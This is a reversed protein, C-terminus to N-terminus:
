KQNNHQPNTDTGIFRLRLSRNYRSGNGGARREEPDPPNDPAPDPPNDPVLDPPNDPVPDPPNDPEPDPPNDPEPDLPNDIQDVKNNIKKGPSRTNKESEQSLAPKIRRLLISDPEEMWRYEGSAADVLYYSTVRFELVGNEVSFIGHNFGYQAFGDGDKFMVGAQLQLVSNPNTGGIPINKRKAQHSHGCLYIGSRCNKMAQALARKTEASLFQYGHHGVFITLDTDAAGFRSLRRHGDSSLSLRGGGSEDFDEEDVILEGDDEYRKRQKVLKVQVEAAKIHKGAATEIELEQKLKKRRERYEEGGVAQGAILGTNLLVFKIRFGSGSVPFTVEQVEYYEPTLDPNEQNFSKFGMSRSFNFFSEFTDKYLIEKEDDGNISFQGETASVADNGKKLVLEKRTLFENYAGNKRKKASRDLDHNGPVVVTFDHGPLDDLFERYREVEQQKLKGRNFLDGSIVLCDATLKDKNIKDKIQERFIESSVLEKDFHLDSIHLFSFKM